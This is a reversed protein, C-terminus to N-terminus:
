YHISDSTEIEYAWHVLAPSIEIVWSRPILEKFLFFFPPDGNKLHQNLASVILFFSEWCNQCMPNPFLLSWEVKM